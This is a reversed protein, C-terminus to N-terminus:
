RKILITILIALILGTTLLIYYLLYDNRKKKIIEKKYEKIIIKGNKNEVLIGESKFFDKLMYKIREKDNLNLFIDQKTPTLSEYYNKLTIILEVANKDQINTKIVDIPLNLIDNSYGLLESVDVDPDENIRDIILNIKDDSLNDVSYKKNTNTDAFNEISKNNDIVNDDLLSFGASIAVLSLIGIGFKTVLKNLTKNNELISLSINKTTKLSINKLSKFYSQSVAYLIDDNAGTKLYRILLERFDKYRKSFSEWKKTNKKVTNSLKEEIKKFINKNNKKIKIENEILTSLRKRIKIENENEILTSLRKKKSIDLNGLLKNKREILREILSKKITENKKIFDDSNNKKIISQIEPIKKSKKASIVFDFDRAGVSIKKKFIFKKGPNEFKINLKKLDKSFDNVQKTVNKSNEYLVLNIKNDIIENTIDNNKIMSQIFDESYEPAKFGPPPSPIGLKKIENDNLPRKMSKGLSNTDNSLPTIITKVGQNNKLSSIDPETVKQSNIKLLDSKPVDIKPLNAKPLNAKPLNAKPLNLNSSNIKLDNSYKLKINSKNSKSLLKKFNEKKKLLQLLILIIIIINFIKM